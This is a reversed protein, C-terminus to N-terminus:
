DHLAVWNLEEAATAQKFDKCSLPKGLWEGLRALDRDFEAELATRVDPSLVPRQRMTLRRKVWDRWGQPILARRLLTASASEVILTYLPFRRLRESSVNGPKLDQMWRPTGRYGIFRCVRELEAQPERVLREFFVPLVAECGYANFFPRLQMAYQGYAIMETHRGVAEDIGCDINGMSWEHIYHSVLRDVPHRMVYILRVNPLHQRLRAVSHPHTPLKTYHTSAEGLLDGASATSFLAAYWALGKRYQEDDSFFNPEKPNCMFIGPQRALQEQLTTTASKMAGIIIFGPLRPGSVATNV